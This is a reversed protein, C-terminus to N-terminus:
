RYLAHFMAMVQAKNLMVRDQQFMRGMTDFCNDVMKELDSPKVGYDSMKMEYVGCAKQLNALAAVIDGDPQGLAKAIPETREPIHQSFFGFFAISLMTLAQGHAIKPFLASIGHSMAHQSTVKSLCEVMGAM